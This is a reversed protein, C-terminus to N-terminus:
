SPVHGEPVRLEETLDLVEIQLIAGTDVPATARQVDPQVAQVSGTLLITAGARFEKKGGSYWAARLTGLTGHACAYLLRVFNDLLLRAATYQLLENEPQSSDYATLYCHFAEPLNFLHRGDPRAGPYRPPGFEGIKGDPEGPVWVIRNGIHQRAPERWGFYQAALPVLVPPDETNLAGEDILRAGVADYLRPLALTIAM